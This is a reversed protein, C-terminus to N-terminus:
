YLDIDDFGLFPLNQLNEAKKEEALSFYKNQKKKRIQRALARLFRLQKYFSQNYYRTTYPESVNELPSWEQLM